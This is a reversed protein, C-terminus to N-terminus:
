TLTKLIQYHSPKGKKKELLFLRCAIRALNDIARSLKEPKTVIERVINNIRYAHKYYKWISTSKDPNSNNVWGTLYQFISRHVLLWILKAILQCEFRHLKIEKVQNIKAQSKWIKFALEIQWRLAYINKIDSASLKNQETNTIYLTLKSRTKFDDSVQNGCSKAQKHTKRVRKEYTADDVLFIVLRSPIRAKKGILVNYELYPLGYKKLKKRCKDFDVKAEPKEAHYVTTQPGLRNLYYADNDIIQEMYGLTAYGLDRILLDNELIDNTNEKADLQDNRTGTTLRLDMTQGSLLDYEYQISIMSESNHTAGGHGAYKQAYAPPLAFRTSDKVRLRNFSSLNGIHGIPSLQQELLSLLIAQLFAVAKENFREQVSQKTIQLGYQNLLDGCIDLLSLEKGQQHVFMLTNLFM